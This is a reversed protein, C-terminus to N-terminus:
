VLTARRNTTYRHSRKDFPNIDAPERRKGFDRRAPAQWPAPTPSARDRDIEFPHIRAHLSKMAVRFTM